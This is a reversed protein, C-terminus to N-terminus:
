AIQQTLMQNVLLKRDCLRCIIGRSTYIGNEDKKSKPFPKEKQTCDPCCASACFTCMVKKDNKGFIKLCAPCSSNKLMKTQADMRFFIPETHNFIVLREPIKKSGFWMFKNSENVEDLKNKSQQVGTQRSSNQSDDDSDNFSRSANENEEIM